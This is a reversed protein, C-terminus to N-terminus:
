IYQGADVKIVQGTIHKAVDSCLFVALPAIDQPSGLRKIACEKLILDRILEPTREQTHTEIFGPAILNVNINYRGLESAATKVLGILGAKAVNYCITGIRGRMGNISGICVIKGYNQQMFLPTVASIYNFSTKLSIDTIEDWEAETVKSIPSGQAHGVNCVLIHIPSKNYLERVFESAKQFDRADLQSAHCNPRLEQLRHLQTEAEDSDQSYTFVIDVGEKALQYAIEAGLGKSGGTVLAVKDKLCLDIVVEGM